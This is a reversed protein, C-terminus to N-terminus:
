GPTLNGSVSKAASLWTEFALKIDAEGYSGDTQMEALSFLAEAHNHDGASKFLRYASPVCKGVGVGNLHM